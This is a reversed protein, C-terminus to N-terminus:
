LKVWWVLGPEVNVRSGFAADVSKKVCFRGRRDSAGNYDHGCLIGGPLVRDRWLRIDTAIGIDREEDQTHSADLFVFSYSRHRSKLIDAAENSSLFLFSARSQHRYIATITEASQKAEEFDCQLLRGISGAGAYDPCYRDIMCLNLNPFERLLAAANAGRWVGVEVGNFRCGTNINDRICKILSKTHTKMRMKVAFPTM